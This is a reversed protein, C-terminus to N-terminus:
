VHRNQRSGPPWHLLLTDDNIHHFPVCILTIVCSSKFYLIDSHVCFLLFMELCTIMEVMADCIFTESHVNLMEVDIEIINFSSFWQM